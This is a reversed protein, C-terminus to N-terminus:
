ISGQNTQNADVFITLLFVMVFEDVCDTTACQYNKDKFFGLEFGPLPFFFFFPM